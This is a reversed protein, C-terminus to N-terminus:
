NAVALGQPGLSMSSYADVFQAGHRGVRMVPVVDGHISVVSSKAPCKAANRTDHGIVRPDQRELLERRFALRKGGDTHSGLLLEEFRTTATTYYHAFVAHPLPIPRKTTGM